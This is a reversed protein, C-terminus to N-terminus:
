HAPRSGSAAEEGLWKPWDSEVLIVPMRDHLEGMENNPACTLITCSLVETGSKRDKWEAWLGAMIMMGDTMAIAYPQKDKV